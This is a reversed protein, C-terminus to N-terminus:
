GQGGSSLTAAAWQASFYSQLAAFRKESVSILDNESYTVPKKPSKKVDTQAIVGFHCSHVRKIRRSKM